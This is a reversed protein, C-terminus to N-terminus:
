EQHRKKDQNTSSVISAFALSNDDPSWGYLRFAKKGDIEESEMQQIQTRKLTTLNVLFVGVGNQLDQAYLMMSGDHNEVPADWIRGDAFIENSMAALHKPMIAWARVYFGGVILGFSAAGIGWGYVLRMLPSILRPKRPQVPVSETRAVSAPASVFPKPLPGPVQLPKDCSPCRVFRGSESVDVVIHQGCGPHSCNFKINM